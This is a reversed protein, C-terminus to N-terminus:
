AITMKAMMLRLAMPIPATTAPHAIERRSRNRQVLRVAAAAHFRPPKWVQSTATLTPGKSSKRSASTPAGGTRPFPPDGGICVYPM